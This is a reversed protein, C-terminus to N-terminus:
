NLKGGQSMYQTLYKPHSEVTEQKPEGLKVLRLYLFTYGRSSPKRALWLGIALFLFLLLLFLMSVALPPEVGTRITEHLLRHFGFHIVFYVWGGALFLLIGAFSGIRGHGTVVLQVWALGVSWGIIISSIWQYAGEPSISWYGVGALIGILAGSCKGWLSASSKSKHQHHVASGAQLFLTAKFLGHLVAHIIAAIYAGLACQILMFGMQAITSGVLQRKYDVHVLMIGAGMLVSIGSLILLTIQAIGTTFLPAFLTLLIGGANVIGAHMVASIPTPAVASDLLWGQFPWQGATMVVSLVLLLNISTREWSELEALGDATLIQSLQWHGTAQSIWLIAALLLLWSVGFLRGMTAAARKAVQWEKKLRIILTLSLLVTGWCLLLLRLDDSLWALSGATTTLTLLTFYKRYSRDGLMFHVCFRQVLLGMTLVFLALLWSLSQFHWPGWILDNKQFILALLAVIPPLSVVGIHISIYNLSVKSFLLLVSSLLSVALFILFLIPWSILM